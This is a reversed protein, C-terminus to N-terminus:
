RVVYMQGLRQDTYVVPSAVVAMRSVANVHHPSKPTESAPRAPNVLSVDGSAVQQLWKIADEYDRRLRSTGQDGGERQDDHLKYRAIVATYAVLSAPVTRLPLQYVERLYDDAIAAADECAAVLRPHNADPTDTGLVQTIEQAKFRQIVAEPSAYMM